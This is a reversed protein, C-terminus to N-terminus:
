KNRLVITGEKYNFKVTFQDFFGVQGVIDYGFDAIDYSFVVRANHTKGDVTIGVRHWYGVPKKGSAIGGFEFRVGSKVDVGIVEGIEGRFICFDAGSDVLVEQRVTKKGHWVEIPMIPRLSGSIKKYRFTKGQAFSM